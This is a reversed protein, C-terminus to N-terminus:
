WGDRARGSFGLVEVPLVFSFVDDEVFVGVPCINLFLSAGIGRAGVREGLGRM